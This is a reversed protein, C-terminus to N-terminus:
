SVDLVFPGPRAKDDPEGMHAVADILKGGLSLAQDALEIMLRNPHCYPAQQKLQWVLKAENNPHRVSAIILGAAPSRSVGAVCHVLIPKRNGNWRRALEIIKEIDAMSPSIGPIKWEVDHFGLRLHNNANIYTPTPVAEANDMLSVLHAPKYRELTEELAWYSSVVIMAVDNRIVREFKRYGSGDNRL